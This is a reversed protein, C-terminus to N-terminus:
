SARTKKRAPRVGRSAANVIVRLAENVAKANPFADAIDPDLLVLNTGESYSGYYKGREGGKLKSLDYERRLAKSKKTQVTKM